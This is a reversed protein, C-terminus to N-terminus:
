RPTQEAALIARALEMDSSAQLDPRESRLRQLTAELHAGRVAGDTAVFSGADERLALVQKEDRFTMYTSATTAGSSLIDRVLGDALASGPPAAALTLMALTKIRM